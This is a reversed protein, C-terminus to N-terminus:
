FPNPLHVWFSYLGANRLVHDPDAMLNTNRMADPDAVAINIELAAPRNDSDYPPKVPLLNTGLMVFNTRNAKDHLPTKRVADKNDALLNFALLQAEGSAGAAPFSGGILINTYTEGASLMRRILQNADRDVTYEVFHVDGISNTGGHYDRPRVTLFQLTPADTTEGLVRPWFVPDPLMVINELDEAMLMEAARAERDAFAKNETTRWLSISTTLSTLMIVMVMGLIASAVLVELLTFGSHHAIRNM